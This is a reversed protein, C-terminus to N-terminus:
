GTFPTAVRNGAAPKVFIVRDRMSPAHIGGWLMGNVNAAYNNNALQFEAPLAGSSKFDVLFANERASVDM